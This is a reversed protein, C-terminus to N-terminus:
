IFQSFFQELTPCIFLIEPMANCVMLVLLMLLIFMMIVIGLILTFGGKM